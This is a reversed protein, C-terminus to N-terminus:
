ESERPPLARAPDMWRRVVAHDLLRAMYDRALPTRSTPVDFATLRVVMPAYMIDAASFAGCLFGGHAGHATLAAEFLRLVDGAERLAEPTADPRRPLFCLHFSMSERIAQFGSHMVASLWRAYARVARDGPWLAPHGPPPFADELYEVIALSDPIVLAGHHLIPVKGTPGVALRKARDKDAHLEITREEFPLGKHALALFARMSWSSVNKEGVYLVLRDAM